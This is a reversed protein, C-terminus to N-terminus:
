AGKGIFALVVLGLVTGGSGALLGFFGGMMAAMQNGLVKGGVVVGGAVGGVISAGIGVVLTTAAAALTLHEM